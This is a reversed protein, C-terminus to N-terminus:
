FLIAVGPNYGGGPGGPGYAPPLNPASGPGGPFGPGGPGGPRGPMGPPVGPRLPLCESIDDPEGKKCLADILAQALLDAAKKVVIGFGIGVIIGGIPGLGMGLGAGIDIIVPGLVAELAGVACKVLAECSPPSGWKLEAGCDKVADIIMAIGGPGLGKLFPYKKILEGIADDMSGYGSPDSTQGPNGACYEYLNPGGSFGAPDRNVWRGDMPNYLRHQALYFGTTRDLLYGFRANYGFREAPTGTAAESGYSDYATSSLVHGTPGLRQAVNGQPDFTYYEWVGAQKRGLLGDPAYVNQADVGGTSSLELWCQRDVYLYYKRITGVQKWAQLGDARYGATWTSSISNVRSERDYGMGTSGYNTPNGNGDYVYGSGTLQNDPNYARRTGKFTTANGASDYANAQSYGGFRTSSEGTLRDQADFGFTTTGSQSSAGPVSSTLSTLNSAGDYVYGSYQSLVTGESTKSLLGIQAGVANRNYRTYAGNPLMRTDMWGNDLYSFTATGEGQPSVATCRGNGDYSYNFVGSTPLTLSKRSGDPWFTFDINQTPLGTYSVAEQLVNDGDDYSWVFTGTGDLVSSRRGYSDYSISINQASAGVYAVSTLLGDLDGYTYNTVNGNGDTRSLVNGIPDHSTYRVKNFNTGSAGPHSVSTVRGSLDYSYQTSQGNGDAYTKRAYTADYSKAHAGSSGNNQLREGEPGYSYTLTRVTTGSESKVYSQVHPGGPYLYINGTISNGPGSQGTAPLVRYLEGDAINYGILVENGLADKGSIRNGRSDYRNHVVKGLSDTVTIAQSRRLPQSYGGDNTYGFTLSRMAMSNNGPFQIRDIDGNANYTFTTTQTTGTGSTGPSPVTVTHQLGSPQYYTYGTATKAGEQVSTMEGLAFNSYDYTYTTVTGKPTTSTLTNGKSDYTANWSRGNGDTVTAAKYIGSGFTSSHEVQGLANKRVTGNMLSDFGITYQQVLIGSSNKVKVTTLNASAMGNWDAQSYERKNGNADTVSTVFGMIPDYAITSTAMGTGTPSPVSIGTLYPVAQGSGGNGFNTYAYQYRVPASTTGTAVIQSAKNVMRYKEKWAAHPNTVNYLGNQYYVSRGYRDSVGTLFGDSSHAMSLLTAGASDHIRSLRLLNVNYPSGYRYTPVPYSTYEFGIWNGVRDKLQRIPRFGNPGWEDTQGKAECVWKTRDGFTVEVADTTSTLYKWQVKMRVGAPVVCDVVPNVSTPAAAATFPIRAGNDFCVEGSSAGEPGVPVARAENGARSGQPPAETEMGGRGSIRVGLNYPHSWGNGFATSARSLSNYLRGWGVSPGTPNYVTLDAPPRYEEEGTALNIPDGATPGFSSGSGSADMPCSPGVDCAGVPCHLSELKEGCATGSTPAYSLICPALIAALRSAEQVLKAQAGALPVLRRLAVASKGEVSVRLAQTLALDGVSGRKQIALYVGPRMRRWKEWTVRLPGGPWPGCDSCVYEVGEDDTEVVTVFHDHEVHAVLPKPLARLGKETAQVPHAAVGLRDCADQLDRMTSGEGTHRVAKSMGSRDHPLGLARMSVAVTSVGCLPDLREPEFIGVRANDAHYGECARAHRSWLAAERRDFGVDEGRLEAEFARRAEGYRGSYFLAMARDHRALGRVEPSPGSRLLADIRGIAVQPYERALDAEALWLRLWQSRAPSAGGNALEERWLARRSADVPVDSRGVENLITGRERRPPAAPRVAGSPPPAAPTATMTPVGPMPPPPALAKARLAAFAARRAMGAEVDTKVTQAAPVGTQLILAGATVRGLLSLLTIPM